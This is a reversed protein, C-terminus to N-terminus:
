KKVPAPSPATPAEIKPMDPLSSACYKAQIDEKSAGLVAAVLLTLFGLIEAGIRAMPLLKKALQILTAMSM